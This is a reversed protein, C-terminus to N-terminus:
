RQRRSHRTLYLPGFFLLLCFSTIMERERQSSESVRERERQKGVFVLKYGICWGTNLVDYKLYDKLYQPNFMSVLQFLSKRM